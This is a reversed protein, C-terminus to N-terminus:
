PRLDDGLGSATGISTSSSSSSPRSIPDHALVEILEEMPVPRSYLFGQLHRCGLRTLADAQEITEVGEAVVRLGRRRGLDIIIAVVDQEVGARTVGSVFGRDIKLEHAPITRLMELSSHGTGFDDLAIQVGIAALAKVVTDARPVTSLATSETIELTLADAPLAAERLANAVSATITDDALQRPSVNVSVRLTPHERRIAAIDRCAQRLVLAGIEDIMGSREADAIFQSPPVTSGDSGRLRALAEVSVIKGSTADLVPQYHVVLAGADLRERLDIANGAMTYAARPVFVRFCAKGEIKARFLAADAERVIDHPQDNGDRVLRIGISATPSHPAAVAAYPQRLSHLVRQAVLSPASADGTIECFVAFEDGGIRAVTDSARVAGSLRRAVETLVADGIHRGYTANVAKFNDLDILMVAVGTGAHQQLRTLRAQLHDHFAARDVLGTLSDRTQSDVEMAEEAEGLHEVVRRRRSRTVFLTRWVSYENRLPPHM